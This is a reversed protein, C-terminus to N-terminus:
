TTVKLISFDLISGGLNGSLANTWVGSLVFGVRNCASTAWAAGPALYASSFPVVGGNHSVPAVTAGPVFSTTSVEAYGSPVGTGGAYTTDDRTVRLDASFTLIYGSYIECEYLVVNVADVPNAMTVRRKAVINDAVNAFEVLDMIILGDAADGGYAVGYSVSEGLGPLTTPYSVSWRIIMDGLPVPTNAWWVASAYTMEDATMAANVRTDSLTAATVMQPNVVSLGGSLGPDPLPNGSFQALDLQTWKLLVNSGGGGGEMLANVQARLSDPTSGDGLGLMEGIEILYTRFKNLLRASARHPENKFPILDKRTSGLSTSSTSPLETLGSM